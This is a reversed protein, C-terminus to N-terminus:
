CMRPAAARYDVANHSIRGPAPENDGTIGGRLRKRRRYPDATYKKAHINQERNRVRRHQRRGNHRKRRAAVTGHTQRPPKALASLPM